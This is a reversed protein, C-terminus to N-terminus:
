TAKGKVRSVIAHDEGNHGIAIITFEDKDDGSVEISFSGNAASVTEGAIFHFDSGIFVKLLRSVGDGGSDKVTGSLTTKAAGKLKIFDSDLIRFRTKNYPDSQNPDIFRVVPETIIRLPDSM